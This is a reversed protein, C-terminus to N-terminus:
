IVKRFALAPVIRVAGAVPAIASVVSVLVAVCVAGLATAPRVEVYGLMGTLPGLSIGHGLFALAAAGGLLGGFLGIAIAEGILLIAVHGGSFGLARMVAVEGTRDRVMMAMSNGAIFLVTLLVVLCLSYVIARLNGISTVVNAVSDTETMTQTEADSNRFNEDIQDAVLGMNDASDVRVILLAAADQIDEGFLNKVADDLIRRDFFFVRSLYETPVEVIPILTFVLKSNAPSRLTIPENLKWGQERMLVSGVMAKRRDQQIEKIKDPPLHYDSGGTVSAIDATIGNLVIPRRPDRYVVWFLV